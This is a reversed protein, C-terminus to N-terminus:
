NFRGRYYKHNFEQQENFKNLENYQAYKHLKSFRKLESLMDATVSVKGDRTDDKELVTFHRLSYIIKM